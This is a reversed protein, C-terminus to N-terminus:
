VVSEAVVAQFSGSMRFLNPHICTSTYLLYASGQDRGHPIRWVHLCVGPRDANTSMHFGGGVQFRTFM